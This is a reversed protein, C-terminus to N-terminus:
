SEALECLFIDSLQKKLYSIDAPIFGLKDVFIAYYLATRTIMGLVNIDYSILSICCGRLAEGDARM